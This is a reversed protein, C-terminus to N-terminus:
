AVAESNAGAGFTRALYTLCSAGSMHILRRHDYMHVPLGRAALESTLKVAAVFDARMIANVPESSTSSPDPIKESKFVSRITFM